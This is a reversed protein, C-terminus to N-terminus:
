GGKGLKAQRLTLLDDSLWDDRYEYEAFVRERVGAGFKHSSSSVPSSLHGTVKDWLADGDNFRSTAVASTGISSWPGTETTGFLPSGVDGGGITIASALSAGQFASGAVTRAQVPSSSSHPPSGTHEAIFQLMYEWMPDGPHADGMMMQHNRGPIMHLEAQSGADLLAQYFATSDEPFGPNDDSGYMVLFPPQTGDVYKLPSANWYQELDGFIDRLDPYIPNNFQIRMDYTGASVGIVGRIFEPSVGQDALYHRDTVLLSVLMGGSSHGMLFINSSDGGYEAIHHHTWAVARAVDVEQGPFVVQQLSGDSVRYNIAVVGYGERALTRALYANRSKEGNRYQGGFAYLVVPFDTRDPPVYVDLNERQPNSYPGDYYVIDRFVSVGDELQPSNNLLVSVQNTFNQVVALDDLGDRNFDGVAV